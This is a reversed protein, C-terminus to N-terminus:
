LIHARFIWTAHSLFVFCTSCRRQEVVNKPGVRLVDSETLVHGQHEISLAKTFFIQYYAHQSENIILSHSVLGCGQGVGHHLEGDELYRTDPHQHLAVLSDTPSNELFGNGFMGRWRANSQSRWRKEAYKNDSRRFKSNVFCVVM